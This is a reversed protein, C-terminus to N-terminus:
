LEALHRREGTGQVAPVERTGQVASLEYFEGLEPHSQTPLPLTLHPSDVNM